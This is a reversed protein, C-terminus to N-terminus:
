AAPVAVIDTDAQACFGAGMDVSFHFSSHGLFSIRNLAFAFLGATERRGM